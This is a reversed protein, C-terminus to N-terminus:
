IRDVRREDKLLLFLSFAGIAMVVDRVAVDFYQGLLLLNIAIGILWLGVVLSGIKPRVLVLIGAVIEIVGVIMMFTGASLPLIDTVIPALYKDWDTLMHAFKDAGAVIPVLGYTWKLITEVQEVRETRTTHATNAYNSTVTAMFKLKTNIINV